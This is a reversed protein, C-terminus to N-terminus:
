NSINPSQLLLNKSSSHPQFKPKRMHKEDLESEVKSSTSTLYLLKLAVYLQKNHPPSLYLMQEEKSRAEKGRLSNQFYQGLPDRNSPHLSDSPCHLSKSYSHAEKCTFLVEMKKKRM